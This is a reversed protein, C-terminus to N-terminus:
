RVADFQGLGFHCGYGLSFLAPTAEDFEIRFGYGPRPTDDKRNRRFEVWEFLGPSKELLEVRVPEPLGHNRCERRVQEALFQERSGRGRRWHLTPAFPTVSQVVKASPRVAPDEFKGRWTAIVRIPDETSRGFLKQL